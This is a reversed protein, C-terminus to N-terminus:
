TDKHYKERPIFKELMAIDVDDILIWYEGANDALNLQYRTRAPWNSNKLIIKDVKSWLFEVSKNTKRNSVTVSERSFCIKIYMRRHAYRFLTIYAIASAAAILSGAIWQTKFLELAIFLILLELVSIYVIFLRMGKQIPYYSTHTDSYEARM